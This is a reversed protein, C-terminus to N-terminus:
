GGRPSIISMLTLSPIHSDGLANHSGAKRKAQTRHSDESVPNPRSEPREVANFVGAGDSHQYSRRMVALSRWGGAAMLDADNLHRRESAFQRRFAHYGGRALRPLGAKKEAQRLWHEAIDRSACRTADRLEPFLPVDGARPNRALYADLAERGLASLPTVTEYGMKDNAARWRIAGHPWHEAWAIPQGVAALAIIIQERSLLVDVARLSVIANLRRGTERALALVCRFRGLPEVADAVKLLAQYREETAVPRLPNREQPLTVGFLPASALLPRGNVKHAQGFHLLALLWFLESRIGGDRVGPRTGRKKPSELAGSRRAAAYADVHHQTLNEVMFDRGIHRELLGFYGRVTRQRIASLLPVRHQQYLSWLQGLTVPGRHGVYRLEALRKALERAQQEALVRDRHGLSKRDKTGSIRVERYLLSGACREYVRVSVGSEDVTKSWVARKRPTM